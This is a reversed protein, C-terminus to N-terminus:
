WCSVLVTQRAARTTLIAPEMYALSDTQLAEIGASQLSALIQDSDISFNVEEPLVQGDESQRPLLMGLVAGGNDFVPGGADGPQAILALRKVEEEGRLGRIDALRGFTLTPSTLVGAYPFGAVAVESQLRPVSVQFEAVSQPALRSQPRLVAFGLADDTYIVEAPHEKDITVEECQGLVETTTIVSGEANIYFGSRSQKPKRVELGAVLDIAQEESPVALAPDLVGDITRYSKRMEDLVRRRRDDDGEPWILAYGKIKNNTLGVSVYSHIGDGIGEIEFSNRARSRPGDKPFITLTQLIEYLGYLRDQDGEQSILLVRADIDGKPDYRAFPPEYEAFAVVGTPIQIEIGAADDRVLELDMGDLLANYAGVLEARQATTLIGTVEHNNAAQWEGMARRTGRGFAGDIAASYFGAWQLAIQLEEKEPRSLDRESARAQQPTEDPVQIPDPEAIVVTADSNGDITQATSSAAVGIPWFQQSFNRGTAIFSDGPIDRRSKLRALLREADPRTYPGLVIGYWNNGLYFGAVDDLRADYSRVRDQAQRLSPQAEVQVWVLQQAWAAGVSLCLFFVAVLARIM